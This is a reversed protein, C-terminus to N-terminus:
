LHSEVALSFRYDSEPQNGNLDQDVPFQIGGKLAWNRYTFFFSPSLFLRTGGSDAVDVGFFENRDRSEFNLEAIVVLDPRLYEVRRTRIGIALDAFVGNGARLGGGGETNLRYRVDGFYYWKLSERAVALALLYDTSGSGLRPTKDDDGTPLKAGLIVAAADQVGIGDRRWFRYKTRVSVDGPGSSENISSRELIYPIVLTASLDATIGYIIESTLVYEREVEGAGSAKEGEFEMELGFGGKFITHPGLGFIPEHALAGGTALFVSLMVATIVALRSM